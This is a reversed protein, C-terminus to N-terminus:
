EMMGKLVKELPLFLDGPQCARGNVFAGFSMLDSGAPKIQEIRLAGEGCWVDLNENLMGCPQRTPNPVDLAQAKQLTVRWSRGTKGSVYVAQAGPWPWLGRIQNVIAAAPREWDIYGHHKQLKPAYTAESENQPTYVATGKEIKELTKMLVPVSLAALRDHLTQATDDPLIPAPAQALIDGADMRDALTIISIGTETEGNMLAWHIPAAGRYKPLLSAHVNVAGFRFLDIVARGIKQGFAIVLLLDGKCAAIQGICDPANINECEAAPLGKQKAWISVATPKPTRRRGAPRAPQTFIGALHHRSSLIAELSPIGFEASGLFVIRM